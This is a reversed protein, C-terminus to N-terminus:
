GSQMVKVKQEKLLKQNTNQDTLFVKFMRCLSVSSSNAPPFCRESKGLIFFYAAEYDKLDLMMFESGRRKEKFRFIFEDGKRREGEELSILGVNM